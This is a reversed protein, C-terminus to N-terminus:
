GNLNDQLIQELVKGAENWDLNTVSDAAKKAYQTLDKRGVTQVLAEALDNPSAPAYNIYPSDSVLRNNPGDNMVPITGCAMLELPLLSMNTLSIVLGAACRNYVDALENLSLTKLNQYPFPIAYDSVDWGALTITYNPLKKHFIELAMMGLEFGRRTTVPRAYFFVEHRKANNSHRYLSLDVGFDYHDCTMGYDTHLKKSLWGGATIGHFNFRYTNEALVYESGLPYFYPEFDQVFYFKHAKSRDNFVPYATEWGTAFIIDAAEMSGKLWSIPGSTTINAAALNEKVASVPLFDSTSYLYIRCTHGRAELFQIFRFINQHGGGNRPPSMVWNITYPPARKETPPTYPRETYTAQLIDQYDALFNVKHKKAPSTAKKMIRKNAKELSRIMLGITGQDKRIRNASSIKHIVHRPKM